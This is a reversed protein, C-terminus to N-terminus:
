LDGLATKFDAVAAAIDDASLVASIVAVGWAGAALCVPVKEATVGGIAFVPIGVTQTTQRLRDIGQPAGYAAKSPTFFVPGFTIFDAGADEARRATEVSHTSCGILANKPLCRRAMQPTLGSEPLHVGALGCVRAIDARDNVFLVPRYSAITQRLSSVLVALDGAKMDKERIQIARVGADCALVLTDELSRDRCATRDTILYLRFPLRKKASKADHIDGHNAFPPALTV